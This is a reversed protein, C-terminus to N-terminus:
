NAFVMKGSEIAKGDVVLTYIFTGTAHYGHEYVVENLGSKLQVPLKRVEKGTTADTILLYAVKHLVVNNVKIGIVTAEDFPNPRNPLLEIPKQSAQLNKVDTIVAMKEDSFLSEVDDADVSAVSVIYTANPLTLTLTTGTFTYVSDWDNTNTRIGIRYKGYQQQSTINVTLNNGNSTVTFTPTTPSIAIMGAANGNIVANRSLYNFDVFFSDLVTDNNTDVGLIDSSTHQRDSYGTATVNADGHENASTFRMAAYNHQRFPIHDGGRNTRDEPTMINIGMPVTAIASVMEKYQLKIYRSLQKHASNFNGFSFLRVNTSDINNLGPCSPPSSTQGCIIGGVVDNNFVAKVKIGKGQVYNAFAESGSLGQEEGIVLLFVITHDFTYKAMVRALEMVLATGSGNDEMGQALCATDCLDACRSDIHGEVIIISKDSTDAGPLVAFINRHQGLNCLVQDFQMYGTILRNENQASFQEFKSYAWRRAAGIGKTASVTDSGTNRNQFMALGNLYSHLSDPSIRTNIGQSIAGPSNIVVSAAYLAPNYAGQMVQEALPNTCILNTQCQASEILSSIAFLLLIFRKM